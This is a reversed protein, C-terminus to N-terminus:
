MCTKTQSTITSQISPSSSALQPAVVSGVVVDDQEPNRQLTLLAQMGAPKNMRQGVILGIM